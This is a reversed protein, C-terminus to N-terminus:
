AAEGAAPLRLIFAAGSPRQDRTEVELKGGHGDAIARGIALGLGSHQPGAAARVSSFRRFSSEQREPPLQQFVALNHRLRAFQDPDVVRM